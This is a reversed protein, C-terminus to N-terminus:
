LLCIENRYQLAYQVRQKSKVPDKNRVSQDKNLKDDKGKDLEIVPNEGKPVELVQLCGRMIAAVKEVDLNKSEEILAKQFGELYEMAKSGGSAEDKKVEEETGM